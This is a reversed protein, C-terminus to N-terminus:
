QKEMNLFNTEDPEPYRGQAEQIRKYYEDAIKDLPEPNLPIGERYSIVMKVSGQEDYYTWDGEMLNERFAGNIEVQGNEYYIIFPGNRKDDAYVARLRPKGSDFYQVWNGHKRDNHYEVEELLEGTDYYKRTIGERKGNLYFEETSLKGTYYSYYKWLSDKTTGIYWGEAALEGNNYYLVAHVRPSKEYYFMRAKVLGDDYYRIFEGVPKGASFYGKYRVAGNPYYQKWWGSKRGANDTQNFLTDGQLTMATLPLGFSLLFLLFVYWRKMNGQIM